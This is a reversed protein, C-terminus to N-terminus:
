LIGVDELTKINLLVTRNTDLDNFTLEGINFRIKETLSTKVNTDIVGVDAEDEPLVYCEYDSIYRYKIFGKWCDGNWMDVSNYEEFDYGNEFKAPNIDHCIIVGGDNLHNISNIIDRYVQHAEHLGDVFVIDFKKNCIEFFNDSTMIFDANANKDPDICFKEQAIIKDFNDSKHRTGIELYSKLNYKKIYFNIIDSHHM